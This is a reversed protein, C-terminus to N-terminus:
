LKLAGLVNVRTASIGEAQYRASVRHTENGDVRYVRKHGSGSHQDARYTEMGDHDRVAFHVVAFRRLLVHEHGVDAHGQTKARVGRRHVLFVTGGLVRYQHGDTHRQRLSDERGRRVPVDTPVRHVARERDGHVQQSGVPGVDRVVAFQGASHVPVSSKRRISSRCSTFNYLRKLATLM